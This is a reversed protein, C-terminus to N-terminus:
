VKAAHEACGGANQGPLAALDGVAYVNSDRTALNDANVAVWGDPALGARAVVEPVRHVPVGIFLDYAVTDGGELRIEKRGADVEVIHQNGVYEIDREALADLFNQSVEATVPVPAGQPGIVRIEVADR